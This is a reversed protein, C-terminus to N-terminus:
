GRLDARYLSATYNSLSSLRDKEVLPLFASASGIRAEPMVRCASRVQLPPRARSLSGHAGTFAQERGRSQARSIDRDRNYDISYRSTM